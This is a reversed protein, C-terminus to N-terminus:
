HSNAHKSSVQGYVLILEQAFPLLKPVLIELKGNKTTFKIQSEVAVLVYNFRKRSAVASLLLITANLLGAGYVNSGRRHGLVVSTEDTWIINKFDELTWHQHELAFALRAQKMKDPTYQAIYRRRSAENKCDDGLGRDPRPNGCVAYYILTM